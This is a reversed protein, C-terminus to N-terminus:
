LEAYITITAQWPRGQFWSSKLDQVKNYIWKRQNCCHISNSVRIKSFGNGAFFTSYRLLDASKILTLSSSKKSFTALIFTVSAGKISRRDTVGLEDRQFWDGYKDSCSCQGPEVNHWGMALSRRGHLECVAAVGFGGYKDSCSCQGPEVNHWGMALSRRFRLGRLGGFRSAVMSTPVVANAQTWTTGDGM